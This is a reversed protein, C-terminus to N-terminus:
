KKKVPTTDNTAPCFRCWPNTPSGIHAPPVEEDPQAQPSPPAPTDAAAGPADGSQPQTQKVPSDTSENPAVPQVIALPPPPTKGGLAKFRRLLPKSDPVHKLGEEAVNLAKQGLKRDAYYDSLASYAPAYDPGIAIAQEFAQVARGESGQGMQSLRLYINGLHVEAEPRLIWDPTQEAKLLHEIGKAAQVLDYKLNAKNSLSRNARVIYKLADCYHHMNMWNQDGYIGRWKDSIARNGRDVGYKAQCYPPMLALEGPTVAFPEIANATSSMFPLVFTLFCVGVSFPKM